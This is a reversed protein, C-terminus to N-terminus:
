NVKFKDAEQLLEGELVVMSMTGDGVEDDQVKLM